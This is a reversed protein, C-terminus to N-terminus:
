YWRRRSRTIFLFCLDLALLCFLHFWTRVLFDWLIDLELPLPKTFLLMLITANRVDNSLPNGYIRFLRLTWKACTQIDPLLVALTLNSPAAIACGFTGTGARKMQLSMIESRVERPHVKVRCTRILRMCARSGPFTIWALLRAVCCWGGDM